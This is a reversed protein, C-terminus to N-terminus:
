EVYANVVFYESSSQTVSFIEGIPVVIYPTVPEAYPYFYTLDDLRSAVKSYDFTESYGGPLKAVAEIEFHEDDVPYVYVKLTDNKSYCGYYSRRGIAPIAILPNKPVRFGNSKLVELYPKIKETVMIGVTRFYVSYEFFTWEAEPLIQTQRYVLVSDIM